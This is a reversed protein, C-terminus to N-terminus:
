PTTVGAGLSREADEISLRLLRRRGQSLM